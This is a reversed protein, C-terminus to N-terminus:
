KYIVTISGIENFLVEFEAVASANRAAGVMHHGGRGNSVRQITQEVVM